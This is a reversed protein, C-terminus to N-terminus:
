QRVKKNTIKYRILTLPFLIVATFIRKWRWPQTCLRWLWEFGLLDWGIKQLIKPSRKAKGTIFDFAGGVGIMVAVNLLKAYRSIFLEQKPHGYAVLLIDPKALRIKEVIKLNPDVRGEKLDTLRIDYPFKYPSKSSQDLRPSASSFGAIILGPYKKALIEATTKAIGPAAGLFYIRYNKQSALAALREVLDIGTVREKLPQGLFRGAWLLGVGDPIVLDANNIIDLYTPNKQAFMLIEPNATVIHKVYSFHIFQDILKVTESMTLNHIKVNLIKIQNM